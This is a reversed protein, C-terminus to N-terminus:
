RFPKIEDWHRRELMGRVAGDLGPYLYAGSVWEDELLRLMKGAQSVPLELKRMHVGIARGKTKLARARKEILVNLAPFRADGKWDRKEDVLLTFIGEQARLNPNSHRLPSVYRLDLNHERLLAGASTGLAWIALLGSDQEGREALEAADVAAFYAAVYPRESWDMLRTPVGHHQALAFLPALEGTPWAGGGHQQLLDGIMSPFNKWRGTHEPVLLGQRDVQLLFARVMSAEGMIQDGHTAHPTFVESGGFYFRCNERLASPTLDWSSDGQGRFMWDTPRPVWRADRRSLAELLAEATDFTEVKIATM